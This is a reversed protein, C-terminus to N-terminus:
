SKINRPVRSSAILFSFTESIAEMMELDIETRKDLRELASYAVQALAAIGHMTEVDLQKDKLKRIAEAPTM